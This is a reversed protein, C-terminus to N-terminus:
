FRRRPVRSPEALEPRCPRPVLRVASRRLWRTLSVGVDSGETARRVAVGGRGRDSRRRAGPRVTRPGLMLEDRPNVNDAYAADGAESGDVYHLKYRFM